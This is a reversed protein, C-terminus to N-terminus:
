DYVSIDVNMKRVESIELVHQNNYNMLLEFEFLFHEYLNKNYDNKETDSRFELDVSIVGEGIVLVGQKTMSMTDINTSLIKKVRAYTSIQTLEDPIEKAFYTLLMSDFGDIELKKDKPPTALVILFKHHAHNQVYNRLKDIRDKKEATLKGAKGEVVEIVITEYHNTFAVDPQYSDLPEKLVVYGKKQYEATLQDIAIHQLYKQLYQKEIQM